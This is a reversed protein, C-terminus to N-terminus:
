VIKFGVPLKDTHHSSHAKLIIVLVFSHSLMIVPFLIHRDPYTQTTKLEDVQHSLYKFLDPARHDILCRHDSTQGV